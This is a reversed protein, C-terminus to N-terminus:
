GSCPYNTCDSGAGSLDCGTGSDPANRCELKTWFIWHSLEVCADNECYSGGGGGGGGDDDDGPEQAVIPTPTDAIAGGGVIGLLFLLTMAAVTAITRGVNPLTRILHSYSM